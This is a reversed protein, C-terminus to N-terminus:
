PQPPALTAPVVMIPRRAHQLLRRSVAGLLPARPPDLGRSGVAILPATATAAVRELEEAPDGSRQEFRVDVPAVPLQRPIAQRATADGLQALVDRVQDAGVGAGTNVLRLSGALQEALDAARRAAGWASSSGDFGCVLTRGRWSLPHIHPELGRPIVLVPCPADAALRSSVRGLADTVPANGRTGVVIIQSGWGEALKAVRRGPEGFPVVHRGAGREGIAEAVRELMRSADAEPGEGARITLQSDLPWLADERAEDGREPMAGVVHVLDLPAALVRALDGGVRALHITARGGDIAVVISDRTAMVCVNAQAWSSSL